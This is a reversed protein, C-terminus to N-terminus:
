KSKLMIEEEHSLGYLCYVLNRIKETENNKIAKLVDSKVKSPITEWRPVRIRRLYQAQFRLYGGRMKTSYTSVFLEAIGAELIAKLIRLDWVESTIHYLNHHPYYGGEEYVVHLEGKIDPILLKPKNILSTDIRDITRYWNKPNKQACNRKKVLEENAKLYGSFKPYKTLDVLTGDANFPNLVALQRWMVQGSKIDDTGLLPIKRDKEIKLENFPAIFIKDAGTAVGIGVKCGTEELTPFDKELRRILSTNKLDLFVWPDSGNVVNAQEVNESVKKTTLQIALNKLSKDSLEPKHAIKTSGGPERKIITIAPYASVESHFADANEVDVYYTLHFEQSVLRRLPAGYKNKMWRNSCIYGLSGGESLLTLGREIFPVYLDARDYITSYISRYREMLTAPIREQRVYPPNGVVYDFSHPLSVLLFDGEVIWSRLLDEGEEPTIGNKKFLERLKTQIIITSEKHIEVARIAASLDKVVEKRGRRSKRYSQLLREVAPILFDGEGASPELFSKKFLLQNPTYGILDLIFNVVEPRTFIAGRETANKEGMHATLVGEEFIPLPDQFKLQKKYVNSSPQMERDNDKRAWYSWFIKKRTDVIKVFVLGLQRSSM